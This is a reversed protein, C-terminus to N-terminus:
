GLLNNVSPSFPVLEPQESDLLQRPNAPVGFFVDRCIGTVVHSKVHLFDKARSCCRVRTCFEPEVNAQGTSPEKDGKGLPVFSQGEALASFVQVFEGTTYRRMVTRSLLERPKMLTRVVFLSARIVLGSRPM